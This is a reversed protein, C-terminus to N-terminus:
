TSAGNVSTGFLCLGYCSLPLVIHTYHSTTVNRLTSNCVWFKKYINSLGPVKNDVMFSEIPPLGNLLGCNEKLLTPLTSSLNALPTYVSVTCNISHLSVLYGSQPFVQGYEMWHYPVELGDLRTREFWEGQLLFEVFGVLRDVSLGHLREYSCLNKELMKGAMLKRSKGCKLIVL